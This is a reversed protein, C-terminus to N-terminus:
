LEDPLAPQAPRARCCLRWEREDDAGEHEQLTFFPQYETASNLQSIWSKPPRQHNLHAFDEIGSWFREIAFVRALHLQEPEAIVRTPSQAAGPNHARQLKVLQKRQEIAPMCQSTLRRRAADMANLAALVVVQWIGRHVGPPPQALWVHERTIGGHPTAAALGLQVERVVAAAVPCEWFHHTRSVRGCNCLCPLPEGGTYRKAGYMAVGDVALRWLIEKRKNEWPLGWVQRMTNTRLLKAAAEGDACGAETAFACM